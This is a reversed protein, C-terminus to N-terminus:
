PVGRLLSAAPRLELVSVDGAAERDAVLREVLALQANRLYHFPNGSPRTIEGTPTLAVFCLRQGQMREEIYYGETVTPDTLNFRWRRPLRWRFVDVFCMGLQSRAASKEIEDLRARGIKKLKKSM